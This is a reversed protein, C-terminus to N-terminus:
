LGHDHEKEANCSPSFADLDIEEPVWSVYKKCIPCSIKENNAFGAMCHNWEDSLNRKLRGILIEFLEATLHGLFESTTMTYRCFTCKISM